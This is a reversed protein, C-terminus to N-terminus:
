FTHLLTMSTPPKFLEKEGCFKITIILHHNFAHVTMYPM